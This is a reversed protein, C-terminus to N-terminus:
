FCVSAILSHRMIMITLLKAYCGTSYSLSWVICLERKQLFHMQDAYGMRAYAKAYGPDMDIARQCDEVALYYAERKNQAAARNSYYVKQM